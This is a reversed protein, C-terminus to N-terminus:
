AGLLGNALSRRLYESVFAGDIDEDEIRAHHASWVLFSLIADLQLERRVVNPVKQEGIQDQGLEKCGGCRADYGDARNAM